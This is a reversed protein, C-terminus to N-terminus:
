RTRSGCPTRTGCRPSGRPSARKPSSGPSSSSRATFGGSSIRRSSRTRRSACSGKTSRRTTSSCARQVPRIPRTHIDTHMLAGKDTKYKEKNRLSEMYISAGNLTAQDLGVSLRNNNADDWALGGEDCADKWLAMAFKVVRRKRATSPSPRATKSSRRAAGALPVPVLLESRGRLHARRDSRDPLGQGQAEQRCRSLGAVDQPVGQAGAEEFLSKRYRDEGRRPRPTGGALLRRGQVAPTPPWITLWGSGQRPSRRRREVDVLGEQLPAGLQPPHPIIDAGSDSSISAHHPAPPRQRQHARPQGRRRPNQHGRSHSGSSRTAAPVFDVWRLIHLKTGQAYAPPHRPHRLRFGGCNQDGRSSSSRRNHTLM